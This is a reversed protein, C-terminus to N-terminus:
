EVMAGSLIVILGFGLIWWYANPLEPSAIKMGIAVGIGIGLATFGIRSLRQSLKM